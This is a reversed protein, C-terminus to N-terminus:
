HLSFEHAYRSLEGFAGRFSELMPEGAADLVDLMTKVRSVNLQEYLASLSANRARWYEM